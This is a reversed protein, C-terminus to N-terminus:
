QTVYHIYITASADHVGLWSNMRGTLQEASFFQLAPFVSRSVWWSVPTSPGNFVAPEPRAPIPTLTARWQPLSGPSVRLRQFGAFDSPGLTGVGLREEISNADLITAALAPPVDLMRRVQAIRESTTGTLEVARPPPLPPADRRCAMPSTLMLLGVLRRFRSTLRM